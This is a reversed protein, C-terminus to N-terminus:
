VSRQNYQNKRDKVVESQQPLRQWLSHLCCRTHDSAASCQLLAWCHLHPSLWSRSWCVLGCHGPSYWAPHPFLVRPPLSVLCSHLSLEDVINYLYCVSQNQLLIRVWRSLVVWSSCSLSSFHKVLGLGGGPPWVSVMTIMMIIMLHTPSMMPTLTILLLIITLILKNRIMKLMITTQIKTVLIMMTKM